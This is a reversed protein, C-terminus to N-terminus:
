ELIIKFLNVKLTKTLEKSLIYSANNKFLVWSFLLKSKVFDILGNKM